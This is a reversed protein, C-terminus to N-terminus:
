KYKINKFNTDKRQVEEYDAEIFDKRGQREERERENYHEYQGSDFEEGEKENMEAQNDMFEIGKEQEGEQVDVNGNTAGSPRVNYGNEQSKKHKEHLKQQKSKDIKHCHFFYM